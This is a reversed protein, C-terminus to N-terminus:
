SAVEAAARASRRLAARDVKGVPLLPLADRVEIAKPVKYATIRQRCWALLEDGAAGGPSAVVAHGVATWLPHPVDVVAAATVAPHAELVQEVERPSVNYGGSKFVESTRGRLAITGDPRRVGLDGTRLWGDAGLVAATRVPDGLYGLMVHDGRV